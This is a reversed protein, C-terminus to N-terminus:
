QTTFYVAGEYRTRSYERDVALLAKAHGKLEDKSGKLFTTAVKFTKAEVNVAIADVQKKVLERLDQDCRIKNLSIGIGSGSLNTLIVGLARMGEESGLHSTRVVALADRNSRTILAIGKQLVDAGGEDVNRAGLSALLVICDIYDALAGTLKDRKNRRVKKLKVLKM